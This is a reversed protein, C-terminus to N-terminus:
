ILVFIKDSTVNAIGGSLLFVHLTEVNVDDYEQALYCFSVKVNGGCVLFVHARELISIMMAAQVNSDYDGLICFYVEINGGSLLYVHAATGFNGDHDGLVCFCVKVNGGGAKHKLNKTSGVQPFHNWQISRLYTKIKISDIGLKSM